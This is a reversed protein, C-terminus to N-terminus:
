GYGLEHLRDDDIGFHHAIEHVVTTRVEHVVDEQSDCLRLLPNKYITIRDPLVGSYTTDRETLPIGEYLGLLPQEEDAANDDAVLVVVNSLLDALEAPLEDLADAVLLEFEDRTMTLVTCSERVGRM